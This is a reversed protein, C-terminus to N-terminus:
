GEGYFENLAPSIFERWASKRVMVVGDSVGHPELFIRAPKRRNGFDPEAAQVQAEAKVFWTWAPGVQKGSKVENAFVSAWKEEDSGGVIHLADRVRSQRALGQKRNRGGMCRRCKCGKVHRTGDKWQKVRLTGVLGCGCECETPDPKLRSVVEPM